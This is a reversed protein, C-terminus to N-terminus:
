IVLHRELLSNIVKEDDLEIKDGKKYRMGDHTLNCTTTMIDTIKKENEEKEVENTPSEELLLSELKEVSAGYFFTKGQKRM